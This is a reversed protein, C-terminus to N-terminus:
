LRKTAIRCLENFSDLKMSAGGVLGGDIDPQSFLEEANKSNVSGGYLIQTNAADGYRGLKNRLFAHVEQAQEPTATEGTGIAWIPEYALVGKEVFEKGCLALMADVQQELFEFLKGSKRIELSEGICFIPILGEKLIASVKKAVDIDTEGHTQRRESHGCIVYTVGVDKLISVSLDGTHAGNELASCDQAGVSFGGKQSELLFVSPPCLVTDIRGDVEVGKIFTDILARDGNM